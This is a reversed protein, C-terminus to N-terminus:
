DVIIRKINGVRDNGIKVFYVGSSAAAMDLNYEYGKGNKNSLTKLYIM